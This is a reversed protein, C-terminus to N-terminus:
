RKCGAIKILQLVALCHESSLIHLVLAKIARFIATLTKFNPLKSASSLIWFKTEGTGIRHIVLGRRFFPSALLPVCQAWCHIVFMCVRPVHMCVYQWLIYICCWTYLCWWTLLKCRLVVRSLFRIPFLTLVAGPYPSLFGVLFPLLPILPLTLVM